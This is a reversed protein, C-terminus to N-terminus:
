NNNSLAKIMLYVFALGSGSLGTVADLASESVRVAWGVAGLCSGVIAEDEPRTRPGMAYVFAGEGVLVFTNFMVWVIRGISGLGDEISAIIIGAAISVVLHEPTVAPRLQHLAERM